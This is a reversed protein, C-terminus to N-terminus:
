TTECYWDIWDHESCIDCFKRKRGLATKEEQRQLTSSCGLQLFLRVHEVTGQLILTECGSLLVRFLYDNYLFHAARVTEYLSDVDAAVVRQFWKSNYEKANTSAQEQQPLYDCKTRHLKSKHRKRDSEDNSSHAITLHPEHAHHYDLFEFIFVLSRHSCHEVVIVDNERQEKAFFPMCEIFGNTMELYRCLYVPALFVLGDKSYLSIDPM